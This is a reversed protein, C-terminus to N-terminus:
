NSSFIEAYKNELTKIENDTLLQFEKRKARKSLKGSEQNLFKILLDVLRDPMEIYNTIFSKMEDYKKLYDVEEPLTKEITEQICEYLFEAQKTADFYRYLNITNNLVEVNGDITARWNIYKLRPRSYAELIKKYDDIRDLMVASIPFIINQPTFKKEAIVHHILYRHMRGNGDAFPHIFVFGFAITTAALIPDIDNTSLLKDTEILGNILSYVDQAKASIHEPIPQRTSRDHVGIFGGENRYGLQIFRFDSIIIQQLRLFEDDSLEHNGAEAIAQSWREARTQQPIEGEIAFSAKTDKLLLFAAARTLIDKRVSGIVHQAKDRLNMNIYNELKQTKRITPCFEPVGPLNNHVRHRKSLKSPGPYQLTTDLVDIFNGKKADFIALKENQLWEYLFWIRRSYSGTPEDKILTIIEKKNVTEFLAKLVSLNIGEYKFAFILHGFLSQDPTHRPTYMIWCNQQYKTHKKSIAALTDPLPVQLSYSQILAAYGALLARDEPLHLEHFVSVTHSFRNSTAM